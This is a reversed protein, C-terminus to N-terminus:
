DIQMWGADMSGDTRGDRDAGLSTEVRENSTIIM